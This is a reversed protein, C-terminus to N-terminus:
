VQLEEKTMGLARALNRVEFDFAKVRGNVIRSLRSESMGAEEAVDAQILGRRVIEIKLPSVRRMDRRWCFQQQLNRAFFDGNDLIKSLPV